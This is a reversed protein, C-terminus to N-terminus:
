IRAQRTALADTLSLLTDREQATLERRAPGGRSGDGGKRSSDGTFIDERAQERYETHFKWKATLEPSLKRQFAGAIYKGIVPLFKFAHGTGGTAVFLNEYDPHYDFVFDGTPTENYWCLCTKEFGRAALDPLIERLGALLRQEGEQPIFNARAPIPRAPPSSVGGGSSSSSPSSSSLTYGFSHCAVKLYGADPHPPFSFFGTSLNFIIPLDKLAELEAPTLRVFGVIQATAVMHNWSPILSATWAGTALIFRDGTIRGGDATRLATIKKQTTSTSTSTEGHELGSVQGHPGTVFAVGAAICRDRLGAIAVGADAWGAAENYFGEFGAGIPRGQVAPFREKLADVDRLPHWKLQLEDLIAQSKRIFDSGGKLKDKAVIATGHGGPRSTTEATWVCPTPHFSAAYEETNWLDFAEKGLQAYVKDGYDFRIVRSIDNSSGDPVPPMSRDLVTISHYGDQALSLATSLGFVGAGVIVIRQSKDM